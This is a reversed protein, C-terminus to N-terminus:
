YHILFTELYKHSFCTTIDSNPLKLKVPIPFDLASFDRILWKDRDGVVRLLCPCFLTGVKLKVKRYGAISKLGSILLTMRAFCHLDM